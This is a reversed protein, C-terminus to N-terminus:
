IYTHIDTHACTCLNTRARSFLRNLEEITQAPKDIQRWEMDDVNPKDIQNIHGDITPDVCQQLLRWHHNTSKTERERERERERWDNAARDIQRERGCHHDVITQRTAFGLASQCFFPYFSSPSQLSFFFFLTSFYINPM